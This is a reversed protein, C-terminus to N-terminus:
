GWGPAEWVQREDNWLLLYNCPCPLELLDTPLMRARDYNGQVNRVFLPCYVTSEYPLYNVCAIAYQGDPQVPQLFPLHQGADIAGPWEGLVPHPLLESGHVHVDWMFLHAIIVGLWVGILIWVIDWKSLYM